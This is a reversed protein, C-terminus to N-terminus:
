DLVGWRMRSWLFSFLSNSEGCELYPVFCGSVKIRQALDHSQEIAERMRLRGAQKRCRNSCQGPAPVPAPAECQVVVSQKSWALAGCGIATVGFGLLPTWRSWASHSTHKSQTSLQRITASITRGVSHRYQCSTQQLSRRLPGALM